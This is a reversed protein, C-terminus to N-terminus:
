FFLGDRISLVRSNTYNADCVVDGRECKITTYISRRKSEGDETNLNEPDSMKEVATNNLDGNQLQMRITRTHFFELRSYRYKVDQVTDRTIILCAM